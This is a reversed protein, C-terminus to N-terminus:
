VLVAIISVFHFYRKGTILDFNLCPLVSWLDFAGGDTFKKMYEM